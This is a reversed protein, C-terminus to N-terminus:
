GSASRGRLPLDPEAHSMGVFATVSERVEANQEPASGSASGIRSRNSRSRLLGMEGSEPYAIIM